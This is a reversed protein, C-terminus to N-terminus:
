ERKRAGPSNAAEPLELTAAEGQICESFDMWIRRAEAADFKWKLVCFMNASLNFPTSIGKMFQHRLTKRIMKMESEEVNWKIRRNGPLKLKVDGLEILTRHEQADALAWPNELRYMCHLFRRSFGSDTWETFRQGYFKETCAAIVFVRAKSSSMRKDQFSALSFGEEVLAMIHGEINKAVAPNRAYIKSLESFALATIKGAAMDERMENLQKVNIDSLVFADPYEGFVNDIITTRLTEPPGILLIGGRTKFPSEVYKSLYAADLAEQLNQIKM